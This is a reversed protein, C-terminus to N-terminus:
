ASRKAILKEVSHGNAMLDSSIKLENSADGDYILLVHSANSQLIEEIIAELLKNESHVVLDYENEKVSVNSKIMTVLM